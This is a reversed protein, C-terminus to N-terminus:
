NEAKSVKSAPLFFEGIQEGTKGVTEATNKPQLATPDSMFTSKSKNQTIGLADTGKLVLQGLGQVTSLEGKAVGTSLNKATDVANGLFGKSQPEPAQPAPQQGLPTFAM